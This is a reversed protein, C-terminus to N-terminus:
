SVHRRERTGLGKGAFGCVYVCVRMNRYRSKSHYAEAEGYDYSNVTTVFM